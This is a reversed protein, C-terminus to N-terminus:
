GFLLPVFVACVSGVAATPVYRHPCLLPVVGGARYWMSLVCACAASVQCWSATCLHLLVTM